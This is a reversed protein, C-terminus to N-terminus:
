STALVIKGANDKEIFFGIAPACGIVTIKGAMELPIARRFANLVDAATKGHTYEQEAEWVKGKLVLYAVCFLLNGNKNRKLVQSM